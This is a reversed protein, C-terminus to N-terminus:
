PVSFILLDESNYVPKQALILSVCRCVHRTSCVSYFWCGGGVMERSELFNSQIFVNDLLELLGCSKPSSVSEENDLPLHLHFKLFFFYFFGLLFCVPVPTHALTSGLYFSKLM